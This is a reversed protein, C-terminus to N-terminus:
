SFLKRSAPALASSSASLVTQGYIVHRRLPKEQPITGDQEAMAMCSMTLKSPLLSLLHQQPQEQLKGSVIPSHTRLALGLPGCGGGPGLTFVQPWLMKSKKSSFTIISPQKTTMRNVQSSKKLFSKTNLFPTTLLSFTLLIVFTQNWAMRLRGLMLAILGGTSTGCILDFYECPCPTLEPANPNDAQYERALQRM